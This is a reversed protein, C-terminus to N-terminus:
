GATACRPRRLVHFQGHEILVGVQPAALLPRARQLRPFPPDPPAPAVMMGALKRAALLLPDGDGARQDVLGGQQQGVLWGAVEVALGADLDHPHKLFEVVLPDGDHHHGVLQVDGAVRPAVQDHAIAPDDAVRRHASRSSASVSSARKRSAWCATCSLKHHADNGGQSDGQAGQASVQHPRQEGRQPHDDAHRRHNGGHAQAVAGLRLDLGLNGADALVHDQNPRAAMLRVPARLPQPPAPVSVMSSASAMWRSIVPTVGTLGSIRLERAPQRRCGSSTCACGPRLSALIEVNALPGDDIPAANLPWSTRLALLTATMPLVM